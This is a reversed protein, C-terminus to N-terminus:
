GCTVVGARVKSRVVRTASETVRKAFAPDAKAAAVLAESM